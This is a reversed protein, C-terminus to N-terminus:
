VAVTVAPLPTVVLGVPFMTKLSPAVVSQVTAEAAVAVGPTTSAVQVSGPLEMVPPAWLTM